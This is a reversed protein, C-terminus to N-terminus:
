IDQFENELYQIDTYDEWDGQVNTWWDKVDEIDNLQWISTSNPFKVKVPYKLTGAEAKKLLRNAQPAKRGLAQNDEADGLFLNDLNNFVQGGWETIAARISESDKGSPTVGEGKLVQYAQDLTQGVLAEAIQRELVNWGVKHRINEQDADYDGFHNRVHVRWSPRSDFVVSTIVNSSNVGMVVKRQILSNESSFSTGTLSENNQPAASSASLELSAEGEQTSKRQIAPAFGTQLMRQLAQNGMKQQLQMMRNSSDTKKMAQSQSPPTKAARSPSGGTHAQYKM